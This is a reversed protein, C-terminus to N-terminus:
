KTERDAIERVEQYTVDKINGSNKTKENFEKIEKNLSETAANIKKISDLDKAISDIKSKLNNIVIDKEKGIEFSRKVRWLIFIIVAALVFLMIAKLILPMAIM